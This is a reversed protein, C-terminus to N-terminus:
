YLFHVAAKGIYIGYQAMGCDCFVVLLKFYYVRM